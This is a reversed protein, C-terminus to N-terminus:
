MKGAKLCCGLCHVENTNRLRATDNKLCWHQGVITLFIDTFTQLSLWQLVLKEIQIGFSIHLIGATALWSPSWRLIYSLYTNYSYIGATSFFKYIWEFALLLLKRDWKLHRSITLGAAVLFILGGVILILIVDMRHDLNSLISNKKKPDYLLSQSRDIISPLRSTIRSSFVTDESGKSIIAFTRSAIFTVNWSSSSM